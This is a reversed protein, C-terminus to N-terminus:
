LMVGDAYVVRGTPTISIIQELMNDASLEADFESRFNPGLVWLVQECSVFAKHQIGIFGAYGNEYKM